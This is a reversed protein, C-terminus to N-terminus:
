PGDLVVVDAGDFAGAQRLEAATAELDVAGYSASRGFLELRGAQQDLRWYGGGEVTWDSSDFYYEDGKMNYRGRVGHQLLLREVINAHYCTLERPSFAAYRDGNRSLIVFKGERQPPVAEKQMVRFYLDSFDIVKLM